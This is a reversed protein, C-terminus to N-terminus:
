DELLKNFKDQEDALKLNLTTLECTFDDGSIYGSIIKRIYIIVDAELMEIENICDELRSEIELRVGREPNERDVHANCIGRIVMSINSAVNKTQEVLFEERDRLFRIEM